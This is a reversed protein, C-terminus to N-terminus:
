GLRETLDHRFGTKRPSPDVGGMPGAHHGARSASVRPRHTVMIHGQSIM